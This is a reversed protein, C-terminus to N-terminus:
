IEPKDSSWEQTQVTGGKTKTFTTTCWMNAKKVFKVLVREVGLEKEMSGQKLIAGMSRMDSKQAM